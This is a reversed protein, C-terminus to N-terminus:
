IQIAGSRILGIFEAFEPHDGLFVLASKAKGGAVEAGYAMESLDYIIQQTPKIQPATTSKDCYNQILFEETGANRQARQKEKLEFPDM